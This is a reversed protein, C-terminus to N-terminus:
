LTWNRFPVFYHWMNRNLCSQELCASHFSVPLTCFASPNLALILNVQLIEYYISIKGQHPCAHSNNSLLTKKSVDSPTRLLMLEMSSLQWFFCISYKAIKLPLWCLFYLGTEAPIPKVHAATCLNQNGQTECLHPGSSPPLFSLPSSSSCHLPSLSNMTCGKGQSLLSLHTFHLFPYIPIIISISKFISARTINSMLCPNHAWHSM